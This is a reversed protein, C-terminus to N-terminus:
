TGGRDIGLLDAIQDMKEITLGAPAGYLGDIQRRLSRWADQLAVRDRYAQESLWATGPSSYQGGDAELSMIDVRNRNSLEVWKRGIKVVSVTTTSRRNDNAVYFLCDGVFLGHPNLSPNKSM